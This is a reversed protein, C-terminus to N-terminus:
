SPAILVCGCGNECTCEAHPIEPLSAIKIVRGDDHRCVQCVDPLRSCIIKASDLGSATLQVIRALYRAHGIIMNAVVAPVFRYNYEGIVSIFEDPSSGSLIALGAAIRVPELIATPCDGLSSPTRSLLFSLEEALRDCLATGAAAVATAAGPADGRLLATAANSLSDDRMPRHMSLRWESSLTEGADTKRTTRGAYASQAIRCRSSRRKGPHRPPRFGELLGARRRVSGM